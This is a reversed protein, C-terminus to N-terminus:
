LDEILILHYARGGITVAAEVDMASLTKQNEEPALSVTPTRNLRKLAADVEARPADGLLPRLIRLAVWGSSGKPAKRYASQITEELSGPANSVPASATEVESETPPSDAPKFFDAASLNNRDLYRGISALLAHLRGASVLGKLRPGRPPLFEEQCRRWGADTLDHTYGRGAKESTVLKLENLKIRQKGTLTFGHTEQLERNSIERAEVILTLLVSIDSTTLRDDTM